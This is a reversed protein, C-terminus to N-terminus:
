EVIDWEGINFFPTVGSFLYGTLSPNVIWVDPDDWIGLYYVNEHMYSSIEHFIEARAAPDVETLQQQSLADLTEDCIFYNYGWPYDDSPIESCLWYSVDPDPFSPADSWQMIDLDGVAGPGGDAYGAFLLDADYSLIQLDIGIIDSLHNSTPPQPPLNFIFTEISLLIQAVLQLM